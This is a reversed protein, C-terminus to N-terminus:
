FTGVQLCLWMHVLNKIEDDNAFQHGCLVDVLLTFIHYDPATFDPSYALHPSTQIETKIKITAAPCIFELMTMTCFLEM